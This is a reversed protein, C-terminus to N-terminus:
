NNMCFYCLLSQRLSRDGYRQSAEKSGHVCQMASAMIRLSLAVTELLDSFPRGDVVSEDTISTLKPFELDNRLPEDGEVVSVGLHMRALRGLDEKNSQRYQSFSKGLSSVRVVVPQDKSMGSLYASWDTEQSVLQLLHPVSTHSVLHLLINRNRCVTM